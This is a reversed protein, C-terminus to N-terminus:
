AQLECPEPPSDQRILLIRWTRWAAASRLAFGAAAKKEYGFRHRFLLAGATASPSLLKKFDFCDRKLLRSKEPLGGAQRDGQVAARTRAGQIGLHLRELAWVQPAAGAVMRFDAFV